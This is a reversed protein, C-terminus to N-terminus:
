IFLAITINYFAHILIPLYLNDEEIFIFSNVLSLLMDIAMFILLFSGTVKVNTFLIPVHLFFFLVSAFFSASYINKSEQYLRKLIFGRSLIEESISTAFAILFIPIIGQATFGTQGFFSIQKFKIFNALIASVFFIIGVSLGFLGDSVISKTKLSVGEFFNKKEIKKIYFYVPLVFVLPKAIFEDFWDPMKFYARYVSWIILIIAWLNLAKQTPSSKEKM